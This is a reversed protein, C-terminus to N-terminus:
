GANCSIEATLASTPRDFKIASAPSRIAEISMLGKRILVLVPTATSARITSFLAAALRATPCQHRTPGYPPNACRLGGAPVISLLPPNRKALGGWKAYRAAELKGRKATFDGGM